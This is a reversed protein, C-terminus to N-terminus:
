ALKSADRKVGPLSVRFLYADDCEAIDILGLTPGRRELAATGTLALGSRNAAVIDAWEDKTPHSPFFLKAPGIKEATSTDGKAQGSGNYPVCSLPGVGDVNNFEFYNSTFSKSRNNMESANTLNFDAVFINISTLANSITKLDSHKWTKSRFLSFHFLFM